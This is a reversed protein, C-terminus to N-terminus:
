QKERLFDGIRTSNSAMLMRATNDSGVLGIMDGYYGREIEEIGRDVLDLLEDQRDRADLFQSAIVKRKNIKTLLNLRIGEQGVGWLQDPSEVLLYPTGVMAALRSSATYFQVTFEMSSVLALTNELDLSLPSSSFDPLRKFPCPYTSQPEGLWVPSYGLNEINVVLRKYFDISLNRGYTKRNRANVGVARPPLFSKVREFAEPRPNPLWRVLERSSELNHFFGVAPWITNCVKCKQNDITQEVAGACKPNPCVSVKPFAAVNTIESIDILKGQKSAVEKEFRKLNRSTHHFARAYDRLWQHDPGLEWFEDALHRYFYERGAWGLIVVFKGAFKTRLLYPLCYLISLTECGFESFMPIIVIDRAPPRTRGSLNHVRYDFQTVEPERRPCSICPPM